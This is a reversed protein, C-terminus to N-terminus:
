RPRHSGLDGERRSKVFHENPRDVDHVGSEIRQCAENLLKIVEDLDTDKTVVAAVPLTRWTLHTADILLSSEHDEPLALAIEIKKPHPYLAAVMVGRLDYGVYITKVYSICGNGILTEHISHGSVRLSPSLTALLDDASSGSM